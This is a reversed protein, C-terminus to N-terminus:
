ENNNRSIAENLNGRPNNSGQNWVLTDSFDTRRLNTGLYSARCTGKILCMNDPKM